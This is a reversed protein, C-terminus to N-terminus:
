APVQGRALVLCHCNAVLGDKETCVEFRSPEAALEVFNVHDDDAYM